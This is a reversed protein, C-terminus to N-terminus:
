ACPAFTELHRQGVTWQALQLNACTQLENRWAESLGVAHTYTEMLTVLEVGEEVRQSLGCCLGPQAAAMGAQLARVTAVVTALDAPRVRYYVYVQVGDPATM